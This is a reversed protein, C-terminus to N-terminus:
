NSAEMFSVILQGIEKAKVRLEDEPTSDTFDAITQYESENFDKFFKGNLWYFCQLFKKVREIELSSIVDARIKDHAYYYARCADEVCKIREIEIDGKFMAAMYSVFDKFTAIEIRDLVPASEESPILCEAESIDPIPENQEEPPAVLDPVIEPQSPGTPFLRMIANLIEDSANPFVVILDNGDKYLKITANEMM